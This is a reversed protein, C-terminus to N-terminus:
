KLSIRFDKEICEQILEGKKDMERTTCIYSDIDWEWSYYKGNKTWVTCTHNKGKTLRFMKEDGNFCGLKILDLKEGKVELIVCDDNDEVIKVLESLRKMCNGGIINQNEQEDNIKERNFIISEIKKDSFRRTIDYPHRLIYVKMIDLCNLYDDAFTMDENYKDLSLWSLEKENVIVGTSKNRETTYYTCVDKFVMHNTGNRLTVMMGTRLDSKKM